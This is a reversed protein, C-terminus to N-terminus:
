LNFKVTTHGEFEKEGCLRAVAEEVVYAGAGFSNTNVFTQAAPFYQDFLHQSMFNLFVAKDYPVLHASWTTSAVDPYHEISRVPVNYCIVVADYGEHIKTMQDEWCTLLYERFDTEFGRKRLANVVERLPKMESETRGCGVVLIKKQKEPSLPLIGRENRVVTSARAYAEEYVRDVFTPDAEKYKREKGEYKLFDRLAKIRSLADDLRSMPINGNEIEEAIRDAAEMPPWLLLDAGAKFALMADEVANDSAMGGMTLADTMLVGKFGLKGKLLGINIDPSYSAIPLRGGVSRDSWAKLTYHTNMVCMCGEEFLARYCRGNTAEWEEMTQTNHSPGYHCNVFYASQGPFHKAMAAVGEGQLGRVINRYLRENLDPDDTAQRGDDCYGGSLAMDITPSMLVDVGSHNCLMGMARGANYALEMDGTSALAPSGAAGRHGEIRAGDACVLLPYDVAARCKRVFENEAIAGSEMEKALDNVTGPAFYVGGCPHKKFFKEISGEMSIHYPYTVFTQYIKERLTLKSFDM